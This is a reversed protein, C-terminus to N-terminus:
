WQPWEPRNTDLVIRSGRGEGDDGIKNVISAEDHYLNDLFTTNVVGILGEAHHIIRSMRLSYVSHNLYHTQIWNQYIYRGNTALNFACNGKQDRLAGELNVRRLVLQDHEGPPKLLGTYNHICTRDGQRHSISSDLKDEGQHIGCVPLLSYNIKRKKLGSDSRMQRKLGKNSPFLSGPSYGPYQCFLCKSSFIAASAVTSIFAELLFSLAMTLFMFHPTTQAAVDGLKNWM